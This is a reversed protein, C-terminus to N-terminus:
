KQDYILTDVYTRIDMYENLDSCKIRGQDLLKGICLGAYKNMAKIIEPDYESIIGTQPIDKMIDRLVNEPNINIM